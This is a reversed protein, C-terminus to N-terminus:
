RSSQLSDALLGLANAMFANKTRIVSYAKNTERKSDNCVHIRRDYHMPTPLPPPPLGGLYNSLPALLGKAGGEGLYDM